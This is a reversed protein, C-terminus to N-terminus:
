VDIYRYQKSVTTQSTVGLGFAFGFVTVNKFGYIEM